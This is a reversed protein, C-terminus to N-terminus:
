SSNTITLKHPTEKAMPSKKTVNMMYTRHPEQNNKLLNKNGKLFFCYINCHM